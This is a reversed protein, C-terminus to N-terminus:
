SAAVQLTARMMPHYICYVALSGAKRLVTRGKKGPQLRVDFSGDRATATHQVTDRNDWVIVDGVKADAPLRGFTMSDMVVVLERPASQAGSPTALSLWAAGAFLGLLALLLRKMM